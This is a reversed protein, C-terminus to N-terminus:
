QLNGADRTIQETIVISTPWHKHCRIHHISMNPQQMTVSEVFARCHSWSNQWIGILTNVSIWKCSPIVQKDSVLLRICFLAVSNGNVSQGWAVGWWVSPPPIDQGQRGVEEEGVRKPIWSQHPTEAWVLNSLQCLELHFGLLPLM